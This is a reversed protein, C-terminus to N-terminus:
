STWASDENLNPTVSTVNEVTPQWVDESWYKMHNILAVGAVDSFSWEIRKNPAVKM